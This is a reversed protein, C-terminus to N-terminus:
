KDSSPSTEPVEMVGALGIWDGKHYVSIGFENVSTGDVFMPRGQQNFGFILDKEARDKTPSICRTSNNAEYPGSYPSSNNPNPATIAALAGLEIARPIQMGMKKIIEGQEEVSQNKTGKIPNMTIIIAREKEEKEHKFKDADKPVVTFSIRDPKNKQLKCLSLRKPIKLYALKLKDDIPVNAALKSFLPILTRNKHPETVSLGYEGWCKGDLIQVQITPFLNQIDFADWLCDDTAFRRWETCVRSVQGLDKVPLFGFINMMLEEPIKCLLRQARINQQNELSQTFAEWKEYPLGEKPVLKQFDTDDAALILEIEKETYVDPLYLALEKTATSGVKPAIEAFAKLENLNDLCIFARSNKNYFDRVEPNQIFFRSISARKAVKNQAKLYEGAKKEGEARHAEISLSNNFFCEPFREVFDVQKISM